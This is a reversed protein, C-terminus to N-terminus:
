HYAEARCTDRRAYLEQATRNQKRDLAPVQSMHMSLHTQRSRAPIAPRFFLKPGLQKRIWERAMVRPLLAATAAAPKVARAAELWSEAKATGRAASMEAGADSRDAALPLVCACAEWPPTRPTVLTAQAAAPKAADRRRPTPEEATVRALSLRTAHAAAPPLFRHRTMPPVRKM